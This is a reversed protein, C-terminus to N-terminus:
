NVWRLAVKTIVWALSFFGSAATLLLLLVGMGMYPGSDDRDLWLWIAFTLPCGVISVLALM